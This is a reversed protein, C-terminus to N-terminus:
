HVYGVLYARVCCLNLFFSKYTKAIVYFLSVNVNQAVNFSDANKILEKLIQYDKQWDLFEEDKLSRSLEHDLYFHGVLQGLGFFGIRM